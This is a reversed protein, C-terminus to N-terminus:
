EVVKLSPNAISYGTDTDLILIRLIHPYPIGAADLAPELEFEFRFHQWTGGPASETYTVNEIKEWSDNYDISQLTALAQIEAGDQLRYDFELVYSTPSGTAVDMGVFFYGNQLSNHAPVTIATNDGYVPNTTRSLSAVDSGEDPGRYISWPAAPGAVQFAYDLLLNDDNSRERPTLEALENQLAANIQRSTGQRQVETTVREVARPGLRNQLDWLYLSRQQVRRGHSIWHGPSFERGSTGRPAIAGISWNTDRTEPDDAILRAAEANWFV